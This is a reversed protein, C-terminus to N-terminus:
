HLQLLAALEEATCRDCACRFGYDALQQQREELQAEEDIYSLTIEEGAKIARLALIVASGDEDEDRKFAEANPSCSHNCCSHLAYFGSGECGPLEEPLSDIFPGAVEFAAAQEEHPLSDLHLLWRQLPNAVFLSLNNLEFMGIISGWVPLTILAPFRSVLRPPLAAALLGLSDSALQRMDAAAEPPAATCEWWPGKHGAAFPQWAALLAQWCVASDPEGSSSSSSAGAERGQQALLCDAALLVKAVVIAALRFIDNTHDAHWFFEQLAESQHQNRGRAEEKEEQGALTGARLPPSGAAPAKAKDQSKGQSGSGSDSSSNGSGSGGNCEPQEEEPGMCLLQHYQQWADAACSPSCYRDGLCDKFGSCGGQCPVAAPLPVADTHPLTLRGHLLKLADDHLAMLAEQHSGAESASSDDVPAAADLDCRGAEDVAESVQQGVQKELSGVFRFCHSCVIAERRSNTHQFAALPAEHLVIEGQEFDKTAFLGKGKGDGADLHVELNLGATLVAYRASQSHAAPSALLEQVQADLTPM